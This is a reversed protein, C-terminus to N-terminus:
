VPLLVAAHGGAATQVEDTERPHVGPFRAQEHTDTLVRRVECRRDGAVPSRRYEWGRPHYVRCTIIVTSWMVLVMPSRTRNLSANRRTPARSLIASTPGFPAPLVVSRSIM